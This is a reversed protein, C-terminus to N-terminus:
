GSSRVLFYLIVLTILMGFYKIWRDFRNRREILRLVANSLGVTNLVDLAKRQARKLRERQESYKSLIAAGTSISDALMRKSNHVSQMAQAEEDFIRLVHASDGNARGLLEAREQAEKMRRQNRAFYRDLSEKLSGAEEAVLEVKRRWLDRQPKAQVSRWLRDMDACLSLVQSIDKKVVFSLEPSDLGGSSTSNELRELREIGDQARMLLKKASQYIESLTGGGGEM